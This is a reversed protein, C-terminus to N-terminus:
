MRIQRACYLTGTFKATKMKVDIKSKSIRDLLIRLILRIM